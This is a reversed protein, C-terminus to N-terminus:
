QNMLLQSPIIPCTSRMRRLTVHSAGSYHSTFFRADDVVVTATPSHAMEVSPLHYYRAASRLSAATAGRGGSATRVEWDDRPCASIPQCLEDCLALVCLIDLLFM